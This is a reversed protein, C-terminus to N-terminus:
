ITNYTQSKQLLPCPFINQVSHLTYSGYSRAPHHKAMGHKDEDSTVNM